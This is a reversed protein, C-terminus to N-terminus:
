AHSVQILDPPPEMISTVKQGASRLGLPHSLAVVLSHGPRHREPRPRVDPEASLKERLQHHWLGDLTQPSVGEGRSAEEQM